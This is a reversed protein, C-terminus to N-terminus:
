VRVGDALITTGALVSLLSVSAGIRVLKRESDHNRGKCCARSPVQFIKKSASEMRYFELGPFCM